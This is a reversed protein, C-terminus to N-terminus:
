RPWRRQCGRETRGAEGHLPGSAAAPIHDNLSKLQGERIRIYRKLDVRTPIYGRPATYGDEYSQTYWLKGVPSTWSFVDKGPILVIGLYLTQLPTRAGDPEDDTSGTGTQAADKRFYDLRGFYPQDVASYFSDANEQLIRQIEEATQQHAATAPMQGELRLRQDDIYRIVDALKKREEEFAQDEDNLQIM